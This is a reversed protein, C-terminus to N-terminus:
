KLRLIASIPLPDNQGMVFEVKRKMERHYLRACKEYELRVRKCTPKEHREKIKIQLWNKLQSKVFFPKFSVQHDLGTKKLMRSLRSYAGSVSGGRVLVTRATLGVRSAM